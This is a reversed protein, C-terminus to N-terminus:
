EGKLESFPLVYFFPYKDLISKSTLEQIKTMDNYFTIYYNYKCEMTGWRKKFHYVSEMGPITTGGWNWYEFGKKSMDMMANYILLNLPQKNRYEVCIAPTFYEVTKNYYMILLAGIKIGDLEAIYIRFDKDYEFIENIKNFLALEKPPAGVADMNQKHVNALFQIIGPSNGHYFVMGSKQAKRILNRTKSHIMKMLDDAINDSYTPLPTFMGVRDDKVMYDTRNDYVDTDMDFPRTVINSSICNEKKALGHFKDLITDIIVTREEKDTISDPITIGPNGGYWPLSNLVNGYKTNKKIFTPLAGIIKDKKRLTIYYPISDTVWKMLDRYKLTSSLLTSNSSLLFDGYEGDNLVEINM